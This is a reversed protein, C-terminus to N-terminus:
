LGLHLTLLFLHQNYAGTVLTNVGTVDVPEVGGPSNQTTFTYQGTLRMHRNILWTVGASAYYQTQTGGGQLYDDLRVGGEANLLINRRYEHDVRLEATTYTFGSTGEQVPDDITRLVTGTVTTLGTPTWIVSAKAIPAFRTKFQAAAFTRVEAGALLQYRWIGNYQYDIGAMALGSTSSLSPTNSTPNIFDSDIGQLVLLLSRQDSLEYRFAVGGQVVNADRYNQNSPVGLITTSGYRYMSFEANPTIKLRGLDFTYDTRFDDLTYSIPTNSPPAGVDTASEHLSYHGYAINLNSRGITYGGGIVATWNTQNQSWAGPYRFDDISFSAGLANREWDSAISVSPNTEIVASTPGGSLGLPNSNYGVSENLDPRIIFSGARIGPEEYLPRLRTVVNVGLEQDYGPVGTPFYNPVYQARAVNPCLGLAGALLGAASITGLAYHPSRSVASAIGRDVLRYGGV